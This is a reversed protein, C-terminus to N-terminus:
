PRPGVLSHMPHRAKVALLDGKEAADHLQSGATLEACFTRTAEMWVAVRGHAVASGRSRWHAIRAGAAGAVLAIALLTIRARGLSLPKVM